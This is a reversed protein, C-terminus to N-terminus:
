SRCSRKTSRSCAPLRGPLHLRGKIQGHEAVDLLRQARLHECRSAAFPVGLHALSEARCRGGAAAAAAAIIELSM